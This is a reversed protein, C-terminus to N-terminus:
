PREELNLPMLASPQGIDSRRDTSGDAKTPALFSVRGEIPVHQLVRTTNIM